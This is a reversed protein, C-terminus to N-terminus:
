RYNNIIDKLKKTEERAKQAFDEGASAFIIGRSSNIIANQGDKDVGAQVTKEVDGGQAGIGPILIPMEGVIRRVIELERPYTAGFILGCNNNYNWDKLVKKALIQYFPKGDMKLDQFEGAGTNSSRCYIFLGKDSLELFPKLGERGVYWHLTIADSRLYDFAYKIYGFNTNGIDARKADLIVPIEPYKSKLYDMTMKLQEVGKAGEAEYFASNPKYCCVLDATSDIIAKNFVFQPHKEKKLHSPIKAPDSDLGVCVLSNHKKSIANLKTKFNM